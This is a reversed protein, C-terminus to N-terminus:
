SLIQEPNVDGYQPLRILQWGSPEMIVVVVLMNAIIGYEFPNEAANTFWLQHQEDALLNIFQGNM